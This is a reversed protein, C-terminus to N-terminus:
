QEDREWWVTYQNGYIPTTRPHAVRAWYAIHQTNQHFLPVVFHNSILIRDLARVAAEFDDRERAALIAEIMADIAPDDAGTYNFSGPLDRSQSGWRYIQEAGPSLSSSYTALIMDYDFDQTRRQYQADDVSRLSVAVGIRDLTRKYAIALREESESKTLIEFALPRGDPGVLRSGARRYGAESLLEFAARMVKRDNGTGDTQQPHWIGTLVDEGVADPYDKLLARELGSAPKGLSSLPSGHWFSGTREYIGFFLNRNVWEFDFLMALAERVRKDAFVPRRTNFAFCLMAAPTGIAVTERVVRGDEVAPFVYAREWQAPDNELHIDYLGKKFAEFRAQVSRFYEVTIKDFNLQGRNVPLDEGWYDDRREFVIRGGPEIDSIRYPGSGLPPTLTSDAFSEINTAHKPLVPTFGAVILPFERDSQDNFTFKVSRPGTKEISEIRKMRSNFPPRGKEELIEFTFIVDEPTVPMGDAWKADSRLEFEMWSRDEPMTVSEAILGYLTFPEDASRAMLPEFILKGYESDWMGRATTRMSNLIFPNLSDFTGIVGYTIGGGRPAEPNAYPFHSFGAPLAPEGHMAIAHSPRPQEAASNASQLLIFTFVVLIQPLFNLYKM